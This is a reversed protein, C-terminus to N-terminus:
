ARATGPAPAQAPAPADPVVDPPEGRPLVLVFEAGRGLGESHAEITGGHLRALRSALSLGIGLGSGGDAAPHVQVFLDFVQQLKDPEIGIGNDRVAIRVAQPQAQVALAIAGGPPTYRAANNLLNTLIQAVRAGDVELVLQPDVPEVRLAHGRSEILPRSTEVAAEVIRAVPLRERQLVITGRSIRSVDLLDDILRVMQTVQREAIARARAAADSGPARRLIELANRLPALPNRLEHALVALFEDKRTEGERLEAYLQALREAREREREESERLAIENRRRQAAAAEAARRARAQVYTIWALLLASAVSLAALWPVLRRQSLAEFAPRSAFRVLWPRGAVDIRRDVRFAPQGPDPPEGNRTSRMLAPPAAVGGDYVDYDVARPGPGAAGELLDDARLPAYVFGLLAARRGAVDPPVANGRYLPLYILLGAQKRAEIEQVLIVKGSAAPRGEDRARAMAASRVPDTFMDYGIAAQNREDLPELYLIAHYEQRPTEPWVRFGPGLEGRLSAERAQLQGAPIRESFGIGLIGPYRERLHLQAVYDTFAQRGVTGGAAFLGATGRLLTVTTDIRERMADSTRTVEGEFSARDKAAISRTVSALLLATVLLALAFVLLPALWLSRTSPEAPDSPSSDTL